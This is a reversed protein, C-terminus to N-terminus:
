QGDREENKDFTDRWRVKQYAFHFVKIRWILLLCTNLYTDCPMVHYVGTSRDATLKAEVQEM